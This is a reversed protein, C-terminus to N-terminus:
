EVLSSAEEFRRCWGEVHEEGRALHMGEHREGFCGLRHRPM